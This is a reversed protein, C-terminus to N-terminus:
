KGTGVFTAKIDEAKKAYFVVFGASYFHGTNLMTNDVVCIDFSDVISIESLTECLM